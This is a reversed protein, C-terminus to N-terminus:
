STTYEIQSLNRVRLIKVVIILIGVKERDALFDFYVESIHVVNRPHTLKFLVCLIQFQQREHNSVDRRLM